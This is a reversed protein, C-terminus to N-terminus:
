GNDEEERRSEQILTQIRVEIYPKVVEEFYADLRETYADLRESIIRNIRADMEEGQYDMIGQISISHHLNATADVFMVRQADAVFHATIDDHAIGTEPRPRTNIGLRSLRADDDSDETEVQTEVSVLDEDIRTGMDDHPWILDHFEVM